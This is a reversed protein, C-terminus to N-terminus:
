DTDVAVDPTDCHAAQDGAKTGQESEPVAPVGPVERRGLGGDQAPVETREEPGLLGQVLAASSSRTMRDEIMTGARGGTRHVFFARLSWGADRVPRASRLLVDRGGRPRSASPHGEDEPHGTRLSLDDNLGLLSSSDVKIRDGVLFSAPM